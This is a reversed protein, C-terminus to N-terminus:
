KREKARALTRIALYGVGMAILVIVGLALYWFYNAQAVTVLTRTSTVTTTSAPATVTTTVAPATVTTTSTTTSTTTATSISLSTSTSTITTTSLDIPPGYSINSHEITGTNQYQVFHFSKPALSTFVLPTVSQYSFQGTAKTFNASEGCCYGILHAELGIMPSQYQKSNPAVSTLLLNQNYLATTATDLRFNAGIINGTSNTLPTIAIKMGSVFRSSPLSILSSGYTAILMTDSVSWYEVSFYGVGSDYGFVYQMYAAKYGTPAYANLQFSWNGRVTGYTAERSIGSMKDTLTM